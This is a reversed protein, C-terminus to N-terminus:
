PAIGPLSLGSGATPIAESASRGLRPSCTM